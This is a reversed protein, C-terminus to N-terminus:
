RGARMRFVTRISVGTLKAIERASKGTGELAAVQEKRLDATLSTGGEGYDYRCKEFPCALCKPALDCGEDPWGEGLLRWEVLEDVRRPIELVAAAM